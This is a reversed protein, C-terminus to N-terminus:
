VDNKMREAETIVSAICHSGLYPLPGVSLQPIGYDRAVKLAHSDYGKHPGLIFSNQLAAKWMQISNEGKEHLLWLHSSPNDILDKINEELDLDLVSIYEPPNGKLADRIGRAWDTEGMKAPNEPSSFVLTLSNSLIARLEIEKTPVITPGWGFCASLCRCLVDMRDGSGPLDRLLFEGNTSIGPFTLVFRLFISIPM